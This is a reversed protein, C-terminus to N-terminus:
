PDVQNDKRSASFLFTELDKLLEQLANGEMNYLREDAENLILHVLGSSRLIQLHHIVTPPRLRLQDAIKKPILPNKSLLKIIKLRTPDAVAKIAQMMQPAIIEGPVVTEHVPRCGYLVLATESTIRDFSVLPTIWYSPSCILKNIAPDLQLTVGNALTKLVQLTPMTQAYLHGQQTSQKLYPLIRLEEERFFTEYYSTLAKKYLLGSESLASFASLLAKIETPKNFILHQQLERRLTQLDQDQWSGQIAIRTLLQRIEYEEPSHMFLTTLVIDDPLQQVANLIFEGAKGPTIMQCCWISPLHFHSHIIRLIKREAAPIRSRVGAAWTPRINFREPNLLVSLSIFFDYKTTTEWTLNMVDM